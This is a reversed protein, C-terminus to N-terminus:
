YRHSRWWALGLDHLSSGSVVMAELVQLASVLGDGTTTRDRCVIHGSPEGGLWWDEKEMQAVVYRDGVDTRVFGIGLEQLAVELGLNSMHTGVLEGRLGDSGSQRSRAIIYLIKDGDVYTVTGYSFMSADGRVFQLGIVAGPELKVADAGVQSSTGSGQIPVMGLKKLAPTMDGIARPHFGALTIPTQIPVLSAPYQISSVPYQIGPEEVALESGLYGTDLMSYRTELM